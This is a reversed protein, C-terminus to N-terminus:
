HDRQADVAAVALDSNTHAGCQEIQQAVLRIKVLHGSRLTFSPSAASLSRERARTMTAESQNRIRM